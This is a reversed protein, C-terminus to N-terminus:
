PYRDDGVFGTAFGVMSGRGLLSRIVAFGCVWWRWRACSFLMKFGHAMMSSLVGRHFRWPSGAFGGVDRDSEVAVVVDFAREVVARPGCQQGAVEQVGAAVGVEFVASDGVVDVEGRGQVCGRPGRFEGAAVTGAADVDYFGCTGEFVVGVQGVLAEGAVRRPGVAAAVREADEAFQLVPFWM